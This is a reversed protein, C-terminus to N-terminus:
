TINKYGSYHYYVAITMVESLQMNRKRGRKIKPLIANEEL